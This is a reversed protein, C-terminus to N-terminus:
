KEVEFIQVNAQLAPPVDGEPYAALLHIHLARGQKALACLAPITKIDGHAVVFLPEPWLESAQSSLSAVTEPTL